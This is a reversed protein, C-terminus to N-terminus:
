LTDIYGMLDKLDGIPISFRPMEWSLTGGDETIGWKLLNELEGESMGRLGTISKKIDPPSLKLDKMEKKGKGNAGHCVGCGGGELIFWSPGGSIPIMKGGIDKGTNYIAAGNALDIEKKIAPLPTNKDVTPRRKSVVFVVLVSLILLMTFTYILLRRKEM